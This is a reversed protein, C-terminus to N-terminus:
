SAKKDERKYADERAKAARARAESVPDGKVAGADDHRRGVASKAAELLERGHDKSKAHRELADEYRAQIYGAWTAEDKRASDLRGVVASKAEQSGAGIVAAVVDAKIDHVSKGAGSYQPGIIARANALADVRADIFASDDRKGAAEELAELKAKLRGIETDKGDDKSDTKPPEKATTKALKALDAEAKDARAKEADLKSADVKKGAAEIAAAVAADVEYEKGDIKIKMTGEGPTVAIADGSDLRLRVDPGARGEPVIAVHNIRIKRQVADYHQGRWTGPTRDLEVEYGVSVQVVGADVKEVTAGDHVLLTAAVKDDNPAPAKLFDKANGKAYQAANSADLHMPPHLYTVPVQEGSALTDAHFVEEPPRLERTVNGAADRYEQIGTRAVFAPARLWGNDMRVAKGLPQTSRDYRRVASM